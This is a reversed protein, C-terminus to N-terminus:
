NLRRAARELTVFEYGDDRLTRVACRLAAAKDEASRRLDPQHAALPTLGDLEADALDIGHLELNVLPRDLMRRTLFRAGAEGWMVVSTGIYPFYGTGPGTVGIPLELLGHGRQWFHKGVRYPDRPAGLVRPDGLISQSQRGRVAIAGMAASKALYYPPCPFVSSDYLVQEQGLVSMLTDDINYGPARFGVPRRGSAQEIADAGGSVQKVQEERPLRVLDYCHDLSHNGVEHGAKHLRAVARQNDPRRLDRGIAFFTARVELEDFLACLRGLARDYVANLAGPQLSAADLGHISLYCDIEDLDVSLAALKPM